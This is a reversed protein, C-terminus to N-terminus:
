LKETLQAWGGGGVGGGGGGCGRVFTPPDVFIKSPREIPSRKLRSFVIVKGNESRTVRILSHPHASQNSNDSYAYASRYRSMQLFVLLIYQVTFDPLKPCLTFESLSRVQQMGHSHPLKPYWTFESMCKCITSIWILHSRILRGM